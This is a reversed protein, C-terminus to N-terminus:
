WVPVPNWVTISRTSATDSSPAIVTVGLYGCSSGCFNISTARMPLKVSLSRWRLIRIEDFSPRMRIRPSTSLQSTWGRITFIIKPSVDPNM